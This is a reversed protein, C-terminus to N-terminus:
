TKPEEVPECGNPALPDVGFKEVKLPSISIEHRFNLIFSSWKYGCFGNGMEDDCQNNHETIIEQNVPSEHLNLPQIEEVQPGASGTSSRTM